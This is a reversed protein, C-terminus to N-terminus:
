TYVEVGREELQPIYTDLSENSLPNNMLDVYDGDSLGSNKVLPSIDSIHNDDLRLHTLNSLSAL